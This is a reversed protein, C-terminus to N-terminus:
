LREYWNSSKQWQYSMRYDHKRTYSSCGFTIGYAGPIAEQLEIVIM